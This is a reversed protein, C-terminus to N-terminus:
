SHKHSYTPSVFLAHPHTRCVACLYPGINDVPNVQKSKHLKLNLRHLFLGIQERHCTRHQLLRQLFLVLCSTLLSGYYITASNNVCVCRTYTPHKTLSEALRPDATQLKIHGTLFHFCTVFGVMRLSNRRDTYLDTTEVTAPYLELILVAHGVFYWSVSDLKNTQAPVESIFRGKRISQLTVTFM